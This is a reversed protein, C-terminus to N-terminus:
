KVVFAADFSYPNGQPNSVSVRVPGVPGPPVVAQLTNQDVFVTNVASAGITVASNNTFGSGRITIQTGPSGTSPSVSGISLPASQLQAVTLGTSSILFMRTGTEDLAMSNLTGPLPDPLAIRLALRQRHVDFVDVGETLPHPAPQMTQQPVFLLSGSSNLKEGLLNTFTNPGTELYDIEEPFGVFSLNGDYLTFGSVIRSADSDIAIDGYSLGGQAITGATVNLLSVGGVADALAVFNGDASSAMVDLGRGVSLPITGLNGTNLDLTHIVGQEFIATCNIDVLMRHAGAPAIEWAQGQCGASADSATLLPYTATVKATDPNVVSVTGDGSNVVALMSGDPTLAMGLPENGVVIPSLFTGSALAFVDVVTSSTNSIYLRQRGKDYVIQNLIGPAPYVTVSALYEFGGALTTSGLPTSITVDAPGPLGAPTTLYIADMPFPFPSVFGPGIAETISASTGGISVQVGPGNLGYGYIVIQSGGSPPGANADVALIQPGFTAGDTAVQVWGDSRTVTVNAAGPKLGPLATTTLVGQANVSTGSGAQTSSSGPAGGFFVQYQEAASFNLGGVLFQTTATLSLLTNTTSSPQGLFFTPQKIAGPDSVDFFAMGRDMGEFIMGTEDIAYPIGGGVPNPAVGLVSFTSADLAVANVGFIVYITKGDVSYTVFLPAATMGFLPVTSILQLQGDYISVGLNDSSAMTIQTGDANLAASSISTNGDSPTLVESTDTAADYLLISAARGGQGTVLAKNRNASRTISGPSFFSTQEMPSFTDAIPDWLFIETGTSGFGESLLCEDLVIAKGNSLTVIRAAGCGMSNMTPAPVQGTVQLLDPDIVAINPGFTGVYVKSGDATEDLGLPLMVPITAKLSADSSSFVLVENLQWVSAFVLKRVPDYAVGTVGMDTRVATSRNVATIPPVTSVVSVSLTTQSSDNGVGSSIYIPYNQVSQAEATATLVLNIENPPIPPNIQTLSLGVNQLASSSPLNLALNAPFQSGTFTLLIKQTSGPTLSVSSPNLSIQFPAAALVQVDFPSSRTLSGSTGVVQVTSTGVSAASTAMLTFSQTQGTGLQIPFQPSTTVGAPLNQLSVSVM